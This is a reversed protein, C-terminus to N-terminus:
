FYDDEKELKATLLGWLESSTLHKMQRSALEAPWNQCISFVLENKRRSAQIAWFLWLFFTVVQILM